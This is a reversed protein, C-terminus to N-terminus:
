RVTFGGRTANFQAAVVQRPSINIDETTEFGFGTEGKDRLRLTLRHDGAPVVFSQYFSSPGDTSFGAPRASGRFILRDDLVLEVYVPWRERPCSLKARMNPELSALEKASRNSCEVKRQGPHNLSLKILGMDPNKYVYPLSSSFFGILVAFWAFTLAQMFFGSLRKNPGRVRWFAGTGRKREREKQIETAATAEKERKRRMQGPIKILERVGFNYFIWLFLPGFVLVPVIFFYVNVSSDM